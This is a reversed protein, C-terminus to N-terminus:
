LAGMEKLISKVESIAHHYGHKYSTEDTGGLKWSQQLPSDLDTVEPLRGELERIVTTIIRDTAERVENRDSDKEKESLDVYDTEIQRQWHEFQATPWGCTRIGINDDGSKIGCDLMYEM